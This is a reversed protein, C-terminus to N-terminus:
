PAIEYGFRKLAYDGADQVDKLGPRGKWRGMGSSPRVLHTPPDADLNLFQYLSTITEAPKNCLDEYRVRYYNAYREGYNACDLNTRAWVAMLAVPHNLGTLLAFVGLSIHPAYALDRGDRVVHIFHLDPFYRHWMPLTIYSVTHKWGWLRFEGSLHESLRSRVEEDLDPKGTLYHYDARNMPISDMAYNVRDEKGMFVGAAQLLLAVLRTGSGGTGGVIIPDTL